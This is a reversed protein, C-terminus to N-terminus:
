AESESFSIRRKNKASGASAMGVRTGRQAPDTGGHALLRRQGCSHSLQEIEGRLLEAQGRGPGGLADNESRPAVLVVMLVVGLGLSGPRRDAHPHHNRLNRVTTKADVCMDSRGHEMGRVYISRGHEMNM